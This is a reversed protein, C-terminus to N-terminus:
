IGQKIIQGEIFGGLIEHFEPEDLLFADHGKDSKVEVFSVKANSKNLSKIITKTESTPFLWDSTFTFFCFSLNNNKFANTLGGKRYSLDFYDM